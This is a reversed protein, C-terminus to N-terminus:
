VDCPRWGHTAEQVLPTMSLPAFSFCGKSDEMQEEGGRDPSRAAREAAAHELFTHLTIYSVYGPHSVRRAAARLEWM